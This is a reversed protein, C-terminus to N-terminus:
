EAERIPKVSLGSVYNLVIKMVGVSAPPKFAVQSASPKALKLKPNNSVGFGDSWLDTKGDLDRDHLISVAYTPHKGPLPVCVTLDGSAPVPVDFKVLHKGSKLFDDEVGRFVKVRVQGVHDKFGTVTLLLAPASAGAECNAAYPGQMGSQAPAAQAVAAPLVLLALASVLMRLSRNKM